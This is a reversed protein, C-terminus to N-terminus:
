PLESSLESPFSVTLVSIKAGKELTGEGELKDLIWTAGYNGISVNRDKDDSWVKVAVDVVRRALQDPSAGEEAAKTAEKEIRTLGELLNVATPRSTLLFASAELILELLSPCATPSLASLPFSPSATGSLLTLLEAAIGLAALSAIAPAGRIKMTKIADFAQLITSVTEWRVEHPLLLQDLIEVSRSQFFDLEGTTRFATLLASM